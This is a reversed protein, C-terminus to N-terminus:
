RVDGRAGLKAKTTVVKGDRRITIKLEDGVKKQAVIVTLEDISGIAIGDASEIVDGVEIGAKAAGSAIVVNNVKVGADVPQGAIGLLAKGIVYVILQPRSKKLQFLGKAEFSSNQITLRQLTPVDAFAQIGADTLTFATLEIFTLNDIEKLWQLDKDTGKWNKGLRVTTAVQGAQQINWIRLGGGNIIVPAGQIVKIGAAEVQVKKIAEIARKIAEDELQPKAQQPKPAKKKAENDVPKPAKKPAAKEPKRDAPIKRPNKIKLVDFEIKEIVDDAKFIQKIEVRKIGRADRFAKIDKKLDELNVEIPKVEFRMQPVPQIIKVNPMGRWPQAWGFGGPAQIVEGGLERIANVARQHRHKKWRQALESRSRALRKQGKNGLQDFAVIVEAMTREDGSVGIRELIASARWSMELNDSLIVAAIPKVAARGAQVLNQTAKERTSFDNDSLQKIWKSIDKASASEAPSNADVQGALSIGILFLTCIVSKRSPMQFVADAGTELKALSKV